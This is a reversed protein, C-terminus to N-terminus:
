VDYGFQRARTIKLHTYFNKKNIKFFKSNLSIINCRYIEFTPIFPIKDLLQSSRCKIPILFYKSNLISIQYM